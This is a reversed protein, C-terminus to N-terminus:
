QPAGNLTPAQALLPGGWQDALLKELAAGVRYLRFAGYDHLMEVGSEGDRLAGPPLIVRTHGIQASVVTAADVEFGLQASAFLIAACLPVRAFARRRTAPVM